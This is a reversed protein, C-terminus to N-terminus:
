GEDGGPATDLDPPRHGFHRAWAAKPRVVVAPRGGVQSQPAVEGAVVSGADVICGDGLKADALILSQRGVLVHRGLKVSRRHANVVEGTSLDTIPHPDSCQFVVDDLIQCDDGISVDSNAAILRANAVTCGDGVLLLSQAALQVTARMVVGTGIFMRINDGSVTLQIHGATSLLAIQLGTVTKAGGPVHLKLNGLRGLEGELVTIRCSDDFTAALGTALPTERILVTHLKKESSQPLFRVFTPPVSMMRMLPQIKPHPTDITMTSYM